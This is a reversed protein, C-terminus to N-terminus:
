WRRRGLRRALRAGIPPATPPEEVGPPQLDSSVHGVRESFEGFFEQSARTDRAADEAARRAADLEGPEYVRVGARSFVPDHRLLGDFDVTYGASIQRADHMALRHLQADMRERLAREREETLALNGAVRSIAQAMDGLTEVLPRGMSAALREIQEQIRRTPRAVEDLRVVLQLEVAKRTPYSCWEGWRRPELLAMLWEGWSEGRAQFEDALVSCASIAWPWGQAAAFVADLLTFEVIKRGQCRGCTITEAIRARVTGAGLAYVARVHHAQFENTLDSLGMWLEIDDADLGETTAWASATCWVDFTGRGRCRPCPRRWSLGSVQDDAAALALLAAVWSERLEVAESTLKHTGLWARGLPRRSCLLGVRNSGRRGFMTTLALLVGTLAPFPDGVEVSVADSLIRLSVHGSEDLLAVYNYRIPQQRFLPVDAGPAYEPGQRREPGLSTSLSVWAAPTADDAM